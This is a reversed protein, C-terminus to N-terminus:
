NAARANQDASTASGLQDRKTGPADYSDILAAAERLVKAEVIAYRRYISETKHGLKPTVPIGKEIDAGRLRLLRRADDFKRSGSSESYRVGNRSYRVWLIRGRRGIGSKWKM